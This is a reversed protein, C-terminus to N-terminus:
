QVSAQARQKAKVREAAAIDAESPQTNNTPAPRKPKAGKSNSTSNNGNQKELRNLSPRKGADKCNKLIGRVFKWNRVGRAVAIEIAEPIWDAPYTKCDDRIMDAVLPTLAGIEQEYLKSIRSFEDRSDNDNINAKSLTKQTPQGVVGGGGQEVHDPQGVVGGGGKNKRVKQMKASNRKTIEQERKMLAGWGIKKEDTQLGWLVGHNFNPDNEALRVVLGFDVLADMCADVATEGLGALEMIQSKAIRDASKHWGFTKRVIVLYCKTENGTMLSMILDDVLANPTQFTNPILRSPAPNSDSM